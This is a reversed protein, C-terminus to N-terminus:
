GGILIAIVALAGCVGLITLYCFLTAKPMWHYTEKFRNRQRNRKNHRM